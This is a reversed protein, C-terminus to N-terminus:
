NEVQKDMNTEDVVFLPRKRIMNMIRWLYEGIIGISILQVGGILLVAIIMSTWGKIYDESIIRVYLAWIILLVALFSFIFGLISAFKLPASSFSTIGNMAFHIMQRYSYGTEGELRADREFEVAVTSFGTWAVQGRIYKDPEPMKNLIDVVSRDVLRFDGTDVPIDVSTISKLIRYFLKATAKKLIGEGKRSKRKANVIKYGAKYKEYLEPILEPPDQLDGDIIVIAEGSCYKLGSSVAVQHGFNRSFSIYNVNPLTEVAEKLLSITSDKSGDNVFIIEYSINISRIADQLRKLLIKFNGEENFLPVVVSLDIRNQTM